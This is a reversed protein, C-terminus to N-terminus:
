RTEKKGLGGGETSPRDYRHDSVSGVRDALFGESSPPAELLSSNRDTSEVKQARDNEVAAFFQAWIHNHRPDRGWGIIM